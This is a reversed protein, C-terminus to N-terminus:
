KKLRKFVRQRVSKVVEKVKQKFTKTKFLRENSTKNGSKIPSM